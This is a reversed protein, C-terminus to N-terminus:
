ILKMCKNYELEYGILSSVHFPNIQVWKNSVWKDNKLIPETDHILVINNKDRSLWAM